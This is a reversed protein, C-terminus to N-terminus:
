ACMNDEFYRLITPLYDGFRPASIGTGELDALTNSTDYRVRYAFHYMMEPPLKLGDFLRRALPGIPKSRLLGITRALPRAIRPGSFGMADLTATYFERYSPPDPDMLQYTHLQQRDRTALEAMAAVVFDVPVLHFFTDEERPVIQPMYKAGPVRGLKHLIRFVFYPGDIKDMRGSRSDGVVVGPRYITVPFRGAARRVLQEALFKSYGYAHDFGQGLQLDDERFIEQWDGAVAMTSVYHFRKLNPLGNALDLMRQTGNVNVAQAEQWSMDLQYGAAIHFLESVRRELMGHAAADLGLRDQELDGAVVQVHKAQRGLADLVPKLRAQSAPRCLIILRRGRSRALEIALRSGIFGTAGTILVASDDNDSM